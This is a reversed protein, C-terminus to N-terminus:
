VGEKGAKAKSTRLEREEARKLRLVATRLRGLWDMTLAYMGPSGEEKWVARYSKVLSKASDFDGSEVAADLAETIDEEGQLYGDAWEHFEEIIRDIRNRIPGILRGQPKAESMSELATM